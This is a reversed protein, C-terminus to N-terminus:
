KLWNITWDTYLNSIFITKVGEYDIVSNNMWVDFPQVTNANKSYQIHKNHQKMNQSPM